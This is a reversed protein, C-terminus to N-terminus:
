RAEGTWVGPRPVFFSSVDFVFDRRCGCKPCAVGVVDLWRGGVPLVENRALSWSSSCVCAGMRRDEDDLNVVSPAGAVRTSV